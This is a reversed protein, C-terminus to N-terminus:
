EYYDTASSPRFRPIDIWTKERPAYYNSLQKYFDIHSGIVKGDILFKIKNKPSIFSKFAQRVLSEYYSAHKKTIRSMEIILPKIHLSAFAFDYQDILWEQSKELKEPTQFLIRNSAFDKAVICPKISATNRDYLYYHNAGHMEFAYGWEGTQNDELSLFYDWTKIAPHLLIYMFFEERETQSKGSLLEELLTMKGFINKGYLFAAPILVENRIDEPIPRALTALHLNTHITHVIAETTPMIKLTAPPYKGQKLHKHLLSAVETEEFAGNRGCLRYWGGMIRFVDVKVQYDLIKEDYVLSGSRSGLTPFLSVEHHMYRLLEPKLARIIEKSTPHIYFLSANNEVLFNTKFDSQVHDILEAPLHLVSLPVQKLSASRYQKELDNLYAIFEESRDTITGELFHNIALAAMDEPMASLVSAIFTQLSKPKKIKNKRLWNNVNKHLDNQLFNKFEYYSLVAKSISSISDKHEKIHLIRLLEHINKIPQLNRITRGKYLGICRTWGNQAVTGAFYVSRNKLKAKYLHIDQFHPFKSKIFNEDHPVQIFSNTINKKDSSLNWHMLAVRMIRQIMECQYLPQEKWAPPAGVTSKSRILAEIEDLSRMGTDIRFGLTKRWEYIERQPGEQFM